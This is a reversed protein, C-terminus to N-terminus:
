KKQSMEILKTLFYTNETFAKVLITPFNRWNENDPDNVDGM